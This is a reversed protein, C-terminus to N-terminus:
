VKVVSCVCNGHCQDSGDGPIGAKMVMESFTRYRHAKPPCTRCHEAAGLARAVPGEYDKFEHWWYVSSAQGKVFTALDNALEAPTTPRERKGRPWGQYKAYLLDNIGQFIWERRPETAGLGILFPEMVNRLDALFPAVAPLPDPLQLAWTLTLRRMLRRFLILDRPLGQIRM